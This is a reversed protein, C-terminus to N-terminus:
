FYILALVLILISILSYIQVKFAFILYLYICGSVVWWGGAMVKSRLWKQSLLNAKASLWEPVHLFRKCLEPTGPKFNCPMCAAGALVQHRAVEHFSDDPMCQPLCAECHWSAPRPRFDECCAQLRQRGPPEMLHSPVAQDKACTSFRIQTGTRSHM